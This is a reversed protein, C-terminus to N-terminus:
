GMSRYCWRFTNSNPFIGSRSAIKCPEFFGLNRLAPPLGDVQNGGPSEDLPELSFDCFCFSLWFLMVDQVMFFVLVNGRLICVLICSYCQFVFASNNNLHFRSHRCLYVHFLIHMHHKVLVFGYTVVWGWSILCSRRSFSLLLYM